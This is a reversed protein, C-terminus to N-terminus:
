KRVEQLGVSVLRENIAAGHGSTIPVCVPREALEQLHDAASRHFRAAKEWRQRQRASAAKVCLAAWLGSQKSHYEIIEQLTM